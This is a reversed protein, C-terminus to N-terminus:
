VAVRRVDYAEQEEGNAEHNGGLQIQYMEWVAVAHKCAIGVSQWHTCGCTRKELNVHYRADEENPRMEEVVSVEEAPNIIVGEDLKVSAVQGMSRELMKNAWSTLIDGNKELRGAAAIVKGEVYTIGRCWHRLFAVPNGGRHKVQRAHLQEVPNNAGCRNFMCMGAEMHKLATWTNANEREEKDKQDRLYAAAERPIKRMLMNWKM